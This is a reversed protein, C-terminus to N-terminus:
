NNPGYCLSCRNCYLHKSTNGLHKELIKNAKGIEAKAPGKKLEMLRERGATNEKKSAKLAHLIKKFRLRMIRTEEGEEENINEMIEEENNENEEINEQSKVPETARIHIADPEVDNGDRVKILNLLWNDEHFRATNDRLIQASMTSNEYIKDWAEKM